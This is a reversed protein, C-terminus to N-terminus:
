YNQKVQVLNILQVIFKVLVMLYSKDSAIIAGALEYKMDVQKRINDNMKRREKEKEPKQIKLARSGFALFVWM